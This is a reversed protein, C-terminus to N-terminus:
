SAERAATTFMSAYHCVKDADLLPMPDVEFGLLIGSVDSGEPIMERLHAHTLLACDLYTQPTAESVWIEWLIAGDERRGRLVLGEATQASAVRVERHNFTTNLSCRLTEDNPNM